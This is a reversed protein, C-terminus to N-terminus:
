SRQLCDECKGSDLLAMAVALMAARAVGGGEGDAGGLTGMDAATLRRNYWRVVTYM